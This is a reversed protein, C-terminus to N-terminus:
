WPGEVRIMKVDQGDAKLQATVAMMTAELTTATIVAADGAAIGETEIGAAKLASLTATASSGKEGMRLYYRGVRQEMSACVMTSLLPAPVGFTPVSTGRALDIIDAVCASATADRGAGRGQSFVPGVYNGITFLGNLVGHTAGLGADKPILSPHVRQLVVPRGEPAEAVPLPLTSSGGSTKSEVCTRYPDARFDIGQEVAEIRSAIGLLKISFGLEDALAVDAGSIDRIGETHVAEYNPLCGTAVAAVHSLKHATDIGDVDLDPPTEAYGLAQAEALVDDFGRGTEKMTTLIFNCTGNLIGAAYSIRNAACGERLARICPIGGGVAAEWGIKANNSEAITTLEAAHVALMAKNATVLSVGRGLAGNAIKLATGYGGITEIIVDVDANNAMDVADSYHKLDAHGRLEAELAEIPRQDAVAVLDIARGCRQAILSRQGSLIQAIGGGVTGVGALGVRLAAM